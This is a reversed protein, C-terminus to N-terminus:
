KTCDKFLEKCADQQLRDACQAAMAEEVEPVHDESQLPSVSPVPPRTSAHVPLFALAASM